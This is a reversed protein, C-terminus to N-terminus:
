RAHWRNVAPFTRLHGIVAKALRRLIRM